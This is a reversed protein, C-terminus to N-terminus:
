TLPNRNNLQCITLVKNITEMENTHVLGIFYACDDMTQNM